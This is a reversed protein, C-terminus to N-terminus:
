KGGPALAERVRAVVDKPTEMAKEVLEAVRQGSIPDVDIKSKEAEALFKPDRVAADFSKRLVAVRVDPVGPPLFFPRGYELRGVMLAMAQRDSETKAADFITPIGPLDPHREFNFHVLPLVKKEQLWNENLAKLSLWANSGMGQVEGREMALHVDTTGKYGSIVKFRLGLLKAAVIPYDYQTTGASTAGVVLEITRLDELTKVSATHWAYSIQTDRNTSGIWIFKRPDYQVVEPTFLAATPMGNIAAGITSGDKSATNYIQNAMIVSGAGVLNQVVIGPAGPIHNVWHRALLRANLDYGAGAASGVVIRIQRDKFFSDDALGAAPAAVLAFAILSHSLGM